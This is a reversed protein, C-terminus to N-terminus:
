LLIKDGADDAILNSDDNGSLQSRASRRQLLKNQAPTPLDTFLIIKNAVLVELLDELVRVMQLDSASLQDIIDSRTTCAETSALGLFQRVEADDAEKWEAAGDVAAAHLALISGQEDRRIYPM